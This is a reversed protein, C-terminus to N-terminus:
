TSDWESARENTWESSILSFWCEVAVDYVMNYITHCQHFSHFCNIHLLDARVVLRCVCRMRVCCAYFLESFHEISVCLFALAWVRFFIYLIYLHFIYFHFSIFHFSYCVSVAYLCIFTYFISVFCLSASISLFFRLFPSHTTLYVHSHISPTHARLCYFVLAFPTLSSSASASVRVTVNLCIIKPFAPDLPFLVAVMINSRLLLSPSAFTPFFLFFFCIFEFLNFKVYARMNGDPGAQQSGSSSQARSLSILREIWIFEYVYCEGFFYEAAVVVVVAHLLPLLSFANVWVFCMIPMNKKNECNKGDEIGSLEFNKLIRMETAAAAAAVRYRMGDSHAHTHTHIHKSYFFCTNEHFKIFIWNPKVMKTAKHEFEKHM